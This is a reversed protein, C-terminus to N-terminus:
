MIAEEVTSLLEETEKEVDRSTPTADKVIMSPGYEDTMINGRFDASRLLIRDGLLKAVSSEGNEAAHELCQALTIGTLKETVARNVVASMAGTGDDIIIKMRLDQVPTVSGHTICENSLISRNCEPCRKIVGSGARIDMVTGSVCMDLGGGTKVIEGVTKKTSTVASVDGFTDDIKDVSSRDGINLQPIGKWGRIYANEIRVAEGEVLGFDNWASFQIKGTEDALLGSWVTKDEGRSNITRTEVSLIKGSVTVSGIGERLDRVKAVSSSYEIKREAVEMEKDEKEVTCKNGLNVQIRDNWLKTYANKILYVSGTELDITGADWVTFQATGTEDGLTGSIISRNEGKIVVDKKEATLIKAHIDVNSESGTLGSITSKLGPAVAAPKPMIPSSTTIIERDLPEVAGKNGINVQIQDNWLKTYASLFRYSGGEEVNAGRAEWITFQATGTEDGVTGSIIEKSEGRINVTRREAAIAKVELDVNPETGKLDAIKMQVGNAPGNGAPASGPVDLETEERAISGNNGINIQVKDNWLKTYANKFRYVAGKELSCNEGDWVTFSATGTEDGLIGSVLKRQS